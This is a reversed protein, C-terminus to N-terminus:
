KYLLENLVLNLFHEINEFFIILHLSLVSLSHAKTRAPSAEDQKRTIVMWLKRLLSVEWRAKNAGDVLHVLLNSPYIQTGTRQVVTQHTVPAPALALSGPLFPGPPGEM